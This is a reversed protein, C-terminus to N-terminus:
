KDTRHINEAYKKLLFSMKKEGFDRYMISVTEPRIGYSACEASIRKAWAPQFHYARNNQNKNLM